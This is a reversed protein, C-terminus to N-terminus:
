PTEQPPPPLLAQIRSAVRELTEADALTLVPLSLGADSETRISAAISHLEWVDKWAFGFPQGHLCLAALAHRPISVDGWEGGTTDLLAEDKDFKLTSGFPYSDAWQKATLAPQLAPSDSM